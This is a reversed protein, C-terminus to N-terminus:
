CVPPAGTFRGGVVVGLPSPLPEVVVLARGFGGGPPVPGLLERCLRARARLVWCRALGVRVV